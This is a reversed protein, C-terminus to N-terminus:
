WASLGGDVVLNIGTIYSSLSSLLFLIVNAIEEPEAMRKLPVRDSYNDVFEQDHGQFVAGAGLVADGPLVLQLSLRRRLLRVFGQREYRRLEIDGFTTSTTEFGQHALRKIGHKCRGPVSAISIGKLQEFFESVM